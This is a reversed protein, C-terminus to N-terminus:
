VCLIDEINEEQLLQFAGKNEKLVKVFDQQEQTL